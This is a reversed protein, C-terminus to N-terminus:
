EKRNKGRGRGSFGGYGPGGASCPNSNANRRGGGEKKGKQSGDKLGYGPRVM